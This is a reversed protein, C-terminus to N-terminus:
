PRVYVALHWVIRRSGTQIPHFGAAQVRADIAKVDHVFVRFGRFKSDCLRYWANALRVQVRVFSGTLGTSPPVTFAYAVGAASLSNELLAEIDPYCCFVRNLVVIDARPLPVKAGDGVQFSIRDAVGRDAALRRAEEVAKASLEVGFAQTAGRSVAETALDGIGCGIDLISRDRIGAQELAALLPATVGAVTRRKKARKSWHDVWDDFCCGDKEDDM